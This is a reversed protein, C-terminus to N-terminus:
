LVKATTGEGSSLPGFGVEVVRAPVPAEGHHADVEAHM